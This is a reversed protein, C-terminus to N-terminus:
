KLTCIVKMYQQCHLKWDFYKTVNAYGNTSTKNWLAFNFILKELAESIERGNHPDVLIGNQCLEIIEKPGGNKTAVLPLGHIAAELLTLGFPESSSVNVFLGKTRAAYQYLQTMEDDKLIKDLCVISGKMQSNSIIDMIEKQFDSEVQGVSICINAFERLKLSESYTKVLTSINKKPDPRCIALILPKSIDDLQTEIEKLL